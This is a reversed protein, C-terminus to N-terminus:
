PRRACEFTEAFRVCCWFATFPPSKATTGTVENGRTEGVYCKIVILEVSRADLGIIRM